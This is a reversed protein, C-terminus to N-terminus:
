CCTLCRIRDGTDTIEDRLAGGYVVRDPTARDRLGTPCTIPFQGPRVARTQDPRRADDWLAEKEEAPRIPPNQKLRAGLRLVDDEDFVLYRVCMEASM